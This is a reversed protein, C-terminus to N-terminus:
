IRMRRPIMLSGFRRVPNIKRTASMMMSKKVSIRRRKKGSTKEEHGKVYLDEAARYGKELGVMLTRYLTLLIRIESASVRRRRPKSPRHPSIFTRLCPRRSAFATTTTTTSMLLKLRMRMSKFVLKNWKWQVAAPPQPTPLARSAQQSDSVRM